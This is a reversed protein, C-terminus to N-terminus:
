IAMIEKEKAATISEIEKIFKDTMDQITKDSQKQEDETMESNKKMAKSKDNADRRINRIAVKADESMKSINKKIEKRREETLQPFVLRLIKGDNQPTIGIDSALIAKEISKLTTADWPTITLTKPDAVKVEAMQTIATPSGYYDVTIKSVVATNARGARIVSLSEKYVEISKNMKSEYEKTDLKM